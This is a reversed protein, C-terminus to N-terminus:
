YRIVYGSAGFYDKDMSSKQRIDKISFYKNNDYDVIYVM